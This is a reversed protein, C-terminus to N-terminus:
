DFVHVEKMRRRGIGHAEYGHLEATAITGDEFRVAAVDRLKRWRGAGFSDRLFTLIHISGGVAIIEVERIRGIVEFDM